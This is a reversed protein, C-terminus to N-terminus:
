VTQAARTRRRRVVERIWWALLFAGAGITVVLAVRSYAASRVQISGQALQRSGSPDEVFVNAAFTGGPTIVRVAFTLTTPVDPELVVIQTNGEEFAIPTAELRVRVRLPFAAQSVVTVPLQQGEISTLTVPQDEVVRVAGYTDRITRLVTAAHAEGADHLPGDRYWVAAAALLM